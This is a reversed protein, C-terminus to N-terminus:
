GLRAVIQAAAQLHQPPIDDPVSCGGALILRRGGTQRVADRIEAALAAVDGHVVPGAEDIGGMVTKGPLAKAVEALGVGTQRDSWSFVPVPYDSVQEWHLDRSGHMHLVNCWGSACGDLARLDFPRGWTRYADASLLGDGLGATAFYIGDAGAALCRAGVEAVNDAVTALGRQLADPAATAVRSLGPGGGAWRLALALPSFVTALVVADPRGQRVLAVAAPMGALAGGPAAGLRPLTEWAAGAALPLPPDPYPLDPMVKYLDLGLEGFFALTAEALAEPSGHPRFHHWLCLPPRDVPEGVLVHQLRARAEM